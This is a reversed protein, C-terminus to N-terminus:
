LPAVMEGYEEAKHPPFRLGQRGWVWFTVGLIGSAHWGDDGLPVMLREGQYSRGQNAYVKGYNYVIAPTGAVRCYRERIVHLRCTAVVEGLERGKLSFGYFDNIMEGALRYTFRKSGPEYDCLWVYPLAQPMVLPDIDRLAPMRCDGHAALWHELVM